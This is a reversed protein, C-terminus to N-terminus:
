LLCRPPVYRYLNVDQAEWRASAMNKYHTQLISCETKEGYFIQKRGHGSSWLWRKGWVFSASGNGNQQLPFNDPGNRYAPMRLPAATQKSFCNEMYHLVFSFFM